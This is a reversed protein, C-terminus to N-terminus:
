GSEYRVAFCNPIIDIIVWLVTSDSRHKLTFSNIRIYYGFVHEQSMGVTKDANYLIYTEFTKYLYVLIYIYKNTALDYYKM